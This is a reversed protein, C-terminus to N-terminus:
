PGLSLLARGMDADRGNSNEKKQIARAQRAAKPLRNLWPARSDGALVAMASIGEAWAEASLKAGHVHGTAGPVCHCLGDPRREPSHYERTVMTGSRVDSIREDCASTACHTTMTLTTRATTVGGSPPTVTSVSIVTPLVLAVTEGTFAHM